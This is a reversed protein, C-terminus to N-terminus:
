VQDHKISIYIEYMFFVSGLWKNNESEVYSAM